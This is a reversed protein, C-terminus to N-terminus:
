VREDIHKIDVKSETEADPKKEVEVTDRHAEKPKKKDTPLVPRVAKSPMVKNIKLAM